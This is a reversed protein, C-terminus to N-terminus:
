NILQYDITTVTGHDEVTEGADLLLHNAFAGVEEDGPHLAGDDEVHPRAGAVDRDDGAALVQLVDVDGETDQEAGDGVLERANVGDQPLVVFLADERGDGGLHELGHHRLEVGPLEDCLTVEDRLLDALVERLPRRLKPDDQVINGDRMQRKSPLKSKRHLQLLHRLLLRLLGPKQHLLRLLILLRRHNRCFPISLRSRQQRLRKPIGSLPQHLQPPNLSRLIDRILQRPRPLHRIQWPPLIQQEIHRRGRILPKSYEPATEVLKEDKKNSKGSIDNPFSFLARM